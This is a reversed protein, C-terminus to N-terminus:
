NNVLQQGQCPDASAMSSPRLSRVGSSLRLNKCVQCSSIVSDFERLSSGIFFENHLRVDSGQEPIVIVGRAGDVRMFSKTQALVSEFRMGAPWPLFGLVGNGSTIV